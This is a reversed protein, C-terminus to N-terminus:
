IDEESIALYNAEVPSDYLTIDIQGNNGLMLEEMAHYGHNSNFREKRIPYLADLDIYPLYDYPRLTDFLWDKQYVKEWIDEDTSNNSLGEDELNNKIYDFENQQLDNQMRRYDFARNVEDARLINHIDREEEDNIMALRFKSKWIESVIYDLDAKPIILYQAEKGDKMKVTVKPLELDYPNENDDLIEFHKTTVSVDEIDGLEYDYRSAFFDHLIVELEHDPRATKKREKAYEKFAEACEKCKGKTLPLNERKCYECTKKRTSSVKGIGRHRIRKKTKQTPRRKKKQYNNAFMGRVSNLYHQRSQYHRIKGNQMRHRYVM